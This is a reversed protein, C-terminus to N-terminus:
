LRSRPMLLRKTLLPCLVLCWSGGAWPKIRFTGQSATGEPDPACATGRDWPQERTM